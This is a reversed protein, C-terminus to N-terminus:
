VNKLQQHVFFFIEPTKLPLKKLLRRALPPSAKKIEKFTTIQFFDQSVWILVKYKISILLLGVKNFLPPNPPLPQSTATRSTSSHRSTPYSCWSPTRTPAPNSRRAWGLWRWTRMRGWWRRPLRRTTSRM